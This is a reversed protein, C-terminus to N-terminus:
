LEVVSTVETEGGYCPLKEYIVIEYNKGEVDAKIKYNTGAVVQTQYSLVKIKCTKEEKGPACCGQGLLKPKKTDKCEKICEAKSKTDKCEKDCDAKLKTDKCDPKCEGKDDKCEPPCPAKAKRDKCDEVCQAKSKSDKCEAVCDVQKKSWPKGSVKALIEEEHAHVLAEVQANAAKDGTFGGCMM